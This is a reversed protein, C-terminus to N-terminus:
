VTPALHGIKGWFWRYGASYTAPSKWQLVVGLETMRMTSWEIATKGKMTQLEAIARRGATRITADSSQWEFARYTDAMACLRYARFSPVFGRRWAPLSFSVTSVWRPASLAVSSDSGCYGVIYTNMM